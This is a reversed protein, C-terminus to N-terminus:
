VAFGSISNCLAVDVDACGGSVPSGHSSQKSERVAACTESNSLLRGSFKPEDTVVISCSHSKRSEWCLEFGSETGANISLTPSMNSPRGEVMGGGERRVIRAMSFQKSSINPQFLPSIIMPILRRGNCTVLRLTVSEGEYYRKRYQVKGLASTM